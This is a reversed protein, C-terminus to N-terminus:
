VSQYPKVVRSRDKQMNWTFGISVKRSPSIGTLFYERSVDIVQSMATVIALEQEFEGPVPVLFEYALASHRVIPV